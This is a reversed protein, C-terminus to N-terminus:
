YLFCKYETNALSEIIESSNVVTDRLSNPLIKKQGSKMDVPLIDLFEFIKNNWDSISKESEFYNEYEITMVEHKQLSSIFEKERISENLMVKLNSMMHFIDIEIPKINVDSYSSAIRSNKMFVGSIYKKLLNQRYLYIIKIDDNTRIFDFANYREMTVLFDKVGVSSVNNIAKYNIKRKSKLHSYASYIQALFFYTKNTYILSLYKDAGSKDCLLRGILKHPLTWEGLVEGYNVCDPCMNLTNSLYNSGSRGSTFIFHRKM